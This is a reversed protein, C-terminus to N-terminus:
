STAEGIVLASGCVLVDQAEAWVPGSGRQGAGPWGWALRGGDEMATAWTSCRKWGRVAVAGRLPSDIKVM